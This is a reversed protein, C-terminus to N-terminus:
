NPKFKLLGNNNGVWINGDQDCALSSVHDNIAGQDVAYNTWTFGDFKSIGNETGVWINNQGDADMSLIVDNKLGDIANYTKWIGDSYNYVGRFHGIWIASDSPTCLSTQVFNRIDEVFDIWSTGNFFSLGSMCSGAWINGELDCTITHIHGIGPNGSFESNVHYYSFNFGDYKTIRNNNSGIWINNENDCELSRVDNSYLGDEKTFNTWNSNDLKSIGMKTGVWLHENKDFVLSTISNSSLGDAVTFNKWLNGDLQYLGSSYTGIWVVNDQVVITQIFKDFPDNANPNEEDTECGSFSLLCTIFLLIYPISTKM